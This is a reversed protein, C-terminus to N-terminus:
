FLVTVAMEYTLALEERSPNLLKRAKSISMALIPIVKEYIRERLKTAIDSAFRKSNELIEYIFGEDSIAESSFLFWILGLDVTSVLSLECEIFCESSGKKSVGINKTNYLRLRDGQIMLVWPVKESESKTLAYTIPSINNFRKSTESYKQNSRATRELILLIIIFMFTVVATTVNM